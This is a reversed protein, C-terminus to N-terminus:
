PTATQASPLPLAAEAETLIWVEHILGQPERLFNVLLNQGVLTGSLVLLNGASRIRAGPSFREPKGNIVVEPPQTVLMAGRETKPPFARVGWQACASSGILSLALGAMAAHALCRRRASPATPSLPTATCRNM